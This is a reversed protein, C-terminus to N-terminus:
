ILSIIKHCDKANDKVQTKVSDAVTKNLSISTLGEATITLPNLDNSHAIVLVEAEKEYKTITDYCDGQKDGKSYIAVRKSQYGLLADFDKENEDPNFYFLSAGNSILTTYVMGLTTTKGRRPEGNLVIIRM